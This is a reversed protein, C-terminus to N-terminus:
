DKGSTDSNEEQSEERNREGESGSEAYLRQHEWVGYNQLVGRIPQSVPAEFSVDFEGPTLELDTRKFCVNISRPRGAQSAMAKTCAEAQPFASPHLSPQSASPLQIPVLAKDTGLKLYPFGM